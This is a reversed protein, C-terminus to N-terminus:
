KIELTSLVKAQLFLKIPFLNTALVKEPLLDEKAHGDSKLIVLAAADMVMKLIEMMVNMWINSVMVVFKPAHIM